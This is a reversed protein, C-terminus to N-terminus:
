FIRYTKVSGNLKLKKLMLPQPLSESKNHHQITQRPFSTLDDCGNKFDKNFQNCHHKQKINQNRPRLTHPIETGWDPISGEGGANSPSTNVVPGGPFGWLMEKSRCAYISPWMSRDCSSCFCYRSLSIVDCSVHATNKLFPFHCNFSPKSLKELGM